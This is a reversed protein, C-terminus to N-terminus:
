RPQLAEDVGRFSGCQQRAAAAGADQMRCWFRDVTLEVRTGEDLLTGVDSLSAMVDELM